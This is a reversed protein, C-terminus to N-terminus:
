TILVSPINVVVIKWALFVNTIQVQQSLLAVAEQHKAHRLDHGNVSLIADGVYLGGTNQVVSDEYIESVLM